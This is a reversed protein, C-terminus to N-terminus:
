RVRELVAAMAQAAADWTPLRERVAQAGRALEARRTADQLLATLATALAAVNGPPVLVGATDGVLDPIAGATTSIVPLGRALAEMVALPFTERLTPLVFLDARDYLDAVAARDLEGALTVRDALGRDELISRLRATTAPYRTTSGACTLRWNRCPITALANFLIEYGKGPNLTAVTVLHVVIPDRSGRALPAPDTGPEVVSIRARDLGSDALPDILSAGAVVIHSASTYARRESEAVLAASASELEIDTALLAHVIPVLAVRRAEHWAQEPMAGFALGDVMVITGAPIEALVRSAEALAAPTPRPFSVDLERVGIAWGRRRLGDVIRRDYEYGGTRTDLSGPVILFAAPM